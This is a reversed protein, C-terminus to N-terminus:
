LLMIIDDYKTIHIHVSIFDLYMIATCNLKNLKCIYVCRKIYRYDEQLLVLSRSSYTEQWLHM